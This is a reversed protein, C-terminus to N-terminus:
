AKSAQKRAYISMASNLTFKPYLETMYRSRQVILPKKRLVIITKSGAWYELLKKPLITHADRSCHFAQFESNNTSALILTCKQQVHLYDICMVFVRDDIQQSYGNQTAMDKSMLAM